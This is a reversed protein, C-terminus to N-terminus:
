EERAQFSIEHIKRRHKQHPDVPLIELKQCSRFRNLEGGVFVWKLTKQDIVNKLSPELGDLEASMKIQKKSSFLSRSVQLFNSFFYLPFASKRNKFNSNNKVTIFSRSHEVSFSQKEHEFSIKNLMKEFLKFWPFPLAMRQKSIICFNLLYM